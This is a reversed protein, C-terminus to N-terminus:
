RAPCPRRTFLAYIEPDLGYGPMRYRRAM